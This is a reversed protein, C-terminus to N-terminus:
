DNKEGESIIISNEFGVLEYKFDYTTFEQDYVLDGFVKEVIKIQKMLLSILKNFVKTNMSKKLHHKRITRYINSTQVYDSNQPHFIGRKKQKYIIYIFNTLNEIYIMSRNNKYEPFIPTKKALSSLVNYNGTCKEGYVIPPRVISIKFFDDELDLIIEEALLKSKGYLSKPNLQTQENIIGREIGFVSMTSLFIFHNVGALKAKKAIKETLNTNIEFFDNKNKVKNEKKHVLAAAHIIVEYKNFDINNINNNRISIAEVKENKNELFKVLNKSIYGNKGTILIKKM